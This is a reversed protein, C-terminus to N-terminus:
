EKELYAKKELEPSVPLDGSHGHHFHLFHLLQLHHLLHRNESPSIPSDVFGNHLGRDHRLLAFIGTQVRMCPITPGIFFGLLIGMPKNQNTGTPLVYNGYTTENLVWSYDPYTEAHQLGVKWEFHCAM